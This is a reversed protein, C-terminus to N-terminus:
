NWRYHKKVKYYPLYSNVPYNVVNIVDLDNFFTVGLKHKGNIQIEHGLAFHLGPSFRNVTNNDTIESSTFM